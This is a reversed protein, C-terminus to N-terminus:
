SILIQVWLWFTLLIMPLGIYWRVPNLVPSKLTIKGEKIVEDFNTQDKNPVEFFTFLFDYLSGIAFFAMMYNIISGRLILFVSLLIFILFYVVRKVKVKRQDYLGIAIGSHKKASFLWILMRLSALTSLGLVFFEIARM